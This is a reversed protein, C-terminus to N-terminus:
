RQRRSRALLVTGYIVAGLGIPKLVFELGKPSFGVRGSLIIVWWALGGLIAVLGM